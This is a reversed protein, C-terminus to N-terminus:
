REPAQGVHIYLTREIETILWGTLAKRRLFSAHHSHSRPNKISEYVLLSHFYDILRKKSGHKKDWFYSLLPNKESSAVVVRASITVNLFFECNLVSVLLVGIWVHVLSGMYKM